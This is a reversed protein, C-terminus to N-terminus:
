QKPHHSFFLDSGALSFFFICTASSLLFQCMKELLPHDGFEAFIVFESLIGISLCFPEIGASFADM